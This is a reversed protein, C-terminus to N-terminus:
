NIKPWSLIMKYGKIPVTNWNVDVKKLQCPFLIVFFLLGLTDSVFTKKTKM